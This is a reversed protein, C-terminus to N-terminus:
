NSSFEIKLFNILASKNSKFDNEAWFIKAKEIAKGVKDSKFGLQMVDEGNLPFKPLSFNEIFQLDKFQLDKKLAPIKKSNFNKALDFLYFDRVLDKEVFTLFRKLDTCDHNISMFQLYKKELNTACIEQAFIKLDFKKQLFLVAIKLNLNASFNLLKELEFLQELAEIDLKSSFIEAAIKKSKLVRLIAVLNESKESALLKLFEQRIRERSLKKLNEKQKVCAALGEDDLKKAYKCSFRFFRLIRLFDEEIRLNADGIFKVKKNKLDSIGDFYDTVLGESDLYFANITFDRRAADLFYDDVFEPECHRGDTEGDKRLTTIEFNKHNIVATITGFKVGTPIAKIKNKQLIKIVEQPLFKTAFDFDNLKKGLLLDRVSGGVLRIDGGFITFIKKVEPSFKKVLEPHSFTKQKM